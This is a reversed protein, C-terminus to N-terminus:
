VLMARRIRRGHDDSAGFGIAGYATCTGIRKVGYSRVQDLIVFTGGGGEGGKKAM